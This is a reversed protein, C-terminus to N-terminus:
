CCGLSRTKLLPTIKRSELASELYNTLFFYIYVKILFLDTTILWYQTYVSSYHTPPAPPTDPHDPVLNYDRRPCWFTLLRGQGYCCSEMQENGRGGMRGGPGCCTRRIMWCCMCAQQMCVSVCMNMWVRVYECNWVTEWVRERVRLHGWVCECIWWVNRCM